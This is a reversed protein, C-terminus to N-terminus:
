FLQAPMDHQLRPTLPLGCPQFPPASASIHKFEPQPTSRAGPHENLQAIVSRTHYRDLREAALRNSEPQDYSRGTPNNTNQNVSRSVISSPYPDREVALLMSPMQMFWTIANNTRHVYRLQKFIWLSFINYNSPQYLNYLKVSLVNTVHYTAPFLPCHRHPENCQLCRNSFPSDHPIDILIPDAM